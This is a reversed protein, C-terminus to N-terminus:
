FSVSDNYLAMLLGASTSESFKQDKPIWDLETTHNIMVNIVTVLSIAAFILLFMWKTVAPTM